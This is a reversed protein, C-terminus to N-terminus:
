KRGAAREAAQRRLREELARGVGGLGFFRGKGTGTRPVTTGKGVTGVGPLGTKPGPTTTSPAFTPTTTSPIGTTTTTPPPTTAVTPTGAAVSTVTTTSAPKAPGSDGALKVLAAALVGLSLTLLVLVIAIPTKWNPSAALRTRAAAGCRLCWEQDPHLPAGCLPCAEGAIPASSPAASTPPSATSSIV